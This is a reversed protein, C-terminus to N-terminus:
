SPISVIGETRIISQIALMAIAINYAKKMNETRDDSIKIQSILDNIMINLQIADYGIVTTALEESVTNLDFPLM